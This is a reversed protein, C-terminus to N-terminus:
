GRHGGKGNSTFSRLGARLEDIQEKTMPKDSEPMKFLDRLMEPIPGERPSALVAPPIPNVANLDLPSTHYFREVIPTVDFVPPLIGEDHKGAFTGMVPGSKKKGQRRLIWVEGRIRRGVLNHELLETIESVCPVWLELTPDLYDAPAYGKWIARTAHIAKGCRIDGLCPVTQKGFWHTLLGVYPGLFRVTLITADKVSAIRVPQATSPRQSPNESM